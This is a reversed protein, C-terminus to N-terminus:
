SIGELYTPYPKGSTTVSSLSVCTLYNNLLVAHSCQPWAAGPSWGLATDGGCVSGVETPRLGSEGPRGPREGRERGEGSGGFGRLLLLPWSRPNSPIPFQNATFHSPKNKTLSKAQVHARADQDGLGDKGVRIM